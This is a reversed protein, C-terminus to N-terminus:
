LLNRGAAALTNPPGNPRQADIREQLQQLTRIDTTDKTLGYASVCDSGFEVPPLPPGPTVPEPAEIQALGRLLDARSKALGPDPQGTAWVCLENTIALVAEMDCATDPELRRLESRYREAQVQLTAREEDDAVIQNSHKAFGAKVAKQHLFNTRDVIRNDTAAALEEATAILRAALQPRLAHLRRFEALRALRAFEMARRRDAVAALDPADAQMMARLASLEDADSQGSRALEEVRSNFASVEAAIGDPTWPPFVLLKPCNAPMM